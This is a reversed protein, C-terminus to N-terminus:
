TIDMPRRTVRRSGSATVRQRAIQVRAADLAQRARQAVANWTHLKRVRRQGEAGLRRAEAPDNILRSICNALEVPDGPSMLLGTVGDEVVDPIAGTRCGVVPVGFTWAELFVIGFSEARSPYLVMSASAFLAAKEAETVDPIWRLDYGQSAQFATRRLDDTGEVAKGAIVVEASPHRAWITPLAAIVTDVGKRATLHGFYLIRFKQKRGKSAETREHCAMKFLDLDVGAGVVTIRDRPVGLGEVYRAEYATNAAYGAARLCSRAISSRDFGWQDEPHIAGHLVVPVHHNQGWTAVQHMHCYPFASAYVGTPALKDLIELFGRMLPGLYLDGIREVGPLGLRRVVAYAYRSMGSLWWYTPLRHVRVGRIEEFPAARAREANRTRFGAPGLADTTIVHIEDGCAAFQEAIHQILVATGDIAPFYTQAVFVLRGTAATSEALAAM